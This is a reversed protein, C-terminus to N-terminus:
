SDVREPQWPDEAARDIWDDRDQRKQQERRREMEEREERGDAM